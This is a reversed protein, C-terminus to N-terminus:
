KPLHAECIVRLTFGECSTFLHLKMKSYWALRASNGEQWDFQESANLKVSANEEGCIEPRSLTSKGWLQCNIASTIESFDTSAVNNVRVNYPNKLHVYSLEDKLVV